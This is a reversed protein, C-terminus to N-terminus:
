LGDVYFVDETKFNTLMNSRRFIENQCIFDIQILKM